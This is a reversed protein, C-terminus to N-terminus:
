ERATVDRPVILKGQQYIRGGLITKAVGRIRGDVHIEGGSMWGGTSQGTHESIFLDGRMMGAGAWNGTSGKVILKGGSLGAGIFDGVDGELILTKGEPLRYGLFHFTRKLEHLRLRIREEKANNCLASLYIGAPGSILYPIRRGKDIEFCLEEIDDVDYDLEQVTRLASSYAKFVRSNEVLWVLDKVEEEVLKLYGEVIQDMVREKARVIRDLPIEKKKYPYKKFDEFPNIM